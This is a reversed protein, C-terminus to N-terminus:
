ELFVFLVCGALTHHSPLKLKLCYGLMVTIRRRVDGSNEIYKGDM